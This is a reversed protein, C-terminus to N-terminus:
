YGGGGSLRGEGTGVGPELEPAVTEGGMPLQGLIPARNAKDFKEDLHAHGEPIHKHFIQHDPRAQEFSHGM